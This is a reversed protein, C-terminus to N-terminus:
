QVLECYVYQNCNHSDRHLYAVIWLAVPIKFTDHVVMVELCDNPSAFRLHSPNTPVSITDGLSSGIQTSHTSSQQLIFLPAIFSSCKSGGDGPEQGIKKTCDDSQNCM